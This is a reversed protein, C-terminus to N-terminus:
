FHIEMSVPKDAVTFKADSWLPPGYSSPADNSLGYPEAPMGNPEFDFTENMNKDQFCSIAYEGAPINEFVVTSSHDKVTATEHYDPAKKIFTGETFLGFRIEGQDTPVNTVHVTITAQGMAFESLILAFLIVFTKM